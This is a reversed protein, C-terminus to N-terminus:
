SQDLPDQKFSAGYSRKYYPYMVQNLDPQYSVSRKMRNCGVVYKKELDSAQKYKGLMEKLHYRAYLVPLNHFPTLLEEGNFPEDTAVQMIDPKQVYYTRLYSTGAENSTPTKYVRILNGRKMYAVVAGTDDRWEGMHQDMWQETRSTLKEWEGTGGYLVYLLKICDDPLVYEDQAATVDHDAYTNLCNTREAVDIQGDNLLKDLNENTIVTTTAEPNLLRARARLDTLEM